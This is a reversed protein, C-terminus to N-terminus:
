DERNEDEFLIRILMDMFYKEMWQKRFIVLLVFGIFYIGAVIAYGGFQSDTWVNLMTAFMLTLAILVFFFVILLVLGTFLAALLRAIKEYARTKTLQLRAEVYEIILKKLDAFFSKVPNDM